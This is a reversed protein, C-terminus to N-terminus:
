SPKSHSVLSLFALALQIVDTYAVSYLGGLLTYIIAIVASIWVSYVYPMDLIVTVTAGALFYSCEFVKIADVLYCCFNIKGPLYAYKGLGLLTCSVWLVDGLLAPLVLAGSLVKGYKIQFPDMMTIYKKDRMPKAFFLGGLASFLIYVM